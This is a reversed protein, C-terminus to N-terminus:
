ITQSFKVQEGRRLHYDFLMAVNRIFPKGSPTITVENDCINILGDQELEVLENKLNALEPLEIAPLVARERCMLNLIVEQVALDADTHTHGKELPLKGALLKEEYLKLEKVNQMFSKSSDSISTPGLGLLVDSKKDMYGMFNRHLKGQEKARALYSEPFAFHDMGVDVMGAANLKAQGTEYLRRKEEPTPLRDEPILRQNKM